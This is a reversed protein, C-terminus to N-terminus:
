PWRVVDFFPSVFQVMIVRLCYAGLLFGSIKEPCIVGEASLDEGSYVLNATLEAETPDGLKDAM